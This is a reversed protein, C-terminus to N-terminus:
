KANKIRELRKENPSKNLKRYIEIRDFNKLKYTNIDIKKGYIGIPVTNLDFLEEIKLNDILKSLKIADIVLINENVELSILHTKIKSVYCVEITIKNEPM